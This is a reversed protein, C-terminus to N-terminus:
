HPSVALLPRKRSQSGAFYGEFETFSVDDLSQLFDPSNPVDGRWQGPSGPQSILSVDASGLNVRVSPIQFDSPGSEALLELASNALTNHNTFSLLQVNNNNSTAQTSEDLRRKWLNVVEATIVM